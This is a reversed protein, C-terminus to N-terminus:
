PHCCGGRARRSRAAGACLAAAPVLLDCLSALPVGCPCLRSTPFTCPLCCPRSHMCVEGRGSCRGLCRGDQSLLELGKMQALDLCGEQASVGGRGLCSMTGPPGGVGWGVGEGEGSCSM